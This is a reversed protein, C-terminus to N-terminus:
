KIIHAALVVWVASRTRSDLDSQTPRALTQLLNTEHAVISDPGITLSSKARASCGPLSRLLLARSDDSLLALTGHEPGAYVILETALDSAGGATDLQIKQRIFAFILASSGILTQLSESGEPWRLHAAGVQETGLVCSRLQEAVSPLNLGLRTVQQALLGSLPSGEFDGILGFGGSKLRLVPAPETIPLVANGTQRFRTISVGAEKAAGAHRLLFSELDDWRALGAPQKRIDKQTEAYKRHFQQWNSFGQEVIRALRAEEEPAIIHSTNALMVDQLAEPPVLCMVRSFLSEFREPAVMTRSIFELRHRAVAWMREERSERVILTDVLITHVSGFRHVRGVRQEMDMPNWTVDLHVLRRAFQLNIGEGGARSSILFQPGDTTSFRRVEAMREADNQGGIIIAPRRGHRRELWLALALVTEIPQAFLVIKEGNANAIVEAWLAEWKPQAEAIVLKVGAEILDRLQTQEWPSMGEEIDDEIDEIDGSDRQRNVEKQLRLLLTPLPENVPGLRYPRMAALAKSLVEDEVGWGARVAQRVMYGLGANPSSTAWQLAQACRWGAARRKVDSMDGPAPIFFRHIRRLWDRHAEGVECIIPDNVQRRPFLPNDDWDRVDDKTRFIVRGALVDDGENPGRLLQLLNEFRATNAQHPTGSLLLVYAGESQASILDRVLRYKQVPDGGGPAWDSLHHCEDVVLVDWARGKIFKERHAPHVARHISAIIRDDSDLNADSEQSKWERFPLNMRRFERGVNTVLRAPALYLVRLGPNAALLEKVILAAEVTKGLGVEDAILVRRLRAHDLIHRVLSVQHALTVVERADLRRQPDEAILALAEMRALSRRSLVTWSDKDTASVLAQAPSPVPQTKFPDIEMRLAPPPTQDAWLRRPPPVLDYIKLGWDERERLVTHPVGEFNVIKM